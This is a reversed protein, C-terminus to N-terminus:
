FLEPEEDQLPLLEEPEQETKKSRSPIVILGKEELTLFQKDFVFGVQAGQGTGNRAKLIRLIRNVAINVTNEGGRYIEKDEFGYLAELWLITQSFRSYAAGGSLGDLDIAVQHGKKPHTILILSAGYEKLSKSVDVIFKPAADWPKLSFLRHDIESM